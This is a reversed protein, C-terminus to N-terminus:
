NKKKMQPQKDSTETGEKTANKKNLEKQRVRSAAPHCDILKIRSDSGKSSSGKDFSGKKQDLASPDKGVNTPEFGHSRVDLLGKNKAIAM